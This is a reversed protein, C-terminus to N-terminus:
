AQNAASLNEVNISQNDSDDSILAGLKFVGSTRLILAGDAHVLGQTFVLSRARRLVDARGEVWAGLPAPALFDTQLSITPLFHRPMDTQYLAATSLLLDAFLALMGGHCQNAPNVHHPQVRLGLLMHGDAWRAFLPGNRTAFFGGITVPGFGEPVVTESSPKRM